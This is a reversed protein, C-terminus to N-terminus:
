LRPRTRYSIAVPQSRFCNGCNGGSHNLGDSGVRQSSCSTMRRAQSPWVSRRYRLAASSSASRATILLPSETRSRRARARRERRNFIVPASIVAPKKIADPHAKSEICRAVISWCARRCASRSRASVSSAKTSDCKAPRPSRWVPRVPCSILEIANGLRQFAQMPECGIRDRRQRGSAVGREGPGRAVFSHRRSGRPNVRFAAPANREVSL